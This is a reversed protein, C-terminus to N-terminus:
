QSRKAGRRLMVGCERSCGADNQSVSCSSLVPVLGFFRAPRNLDIARDNGVGRGGEEPPPMVANQKGWPPPM